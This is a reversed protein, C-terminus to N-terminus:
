CFDLQNDRDGPSLAQLLRGRESETLDTEWDLRLDCNRSIANLGSVSGSILYVRDPQLPIPHGACTNRSSKSTADLSNESAPLLNLQVLLQSRRLGVSMLPSRRIVRQVHLSYFNQFQGNTSHGSLSPSTETLNTSAQVKTLVVFKSSCDMLQSSQGCGVEDGPCFRKLPINQFRAKVAIENFRRAVPSLEPAAPQDAVKVTSIAPKSNNSFEISDIFDSPRDSSEPPMEDMEESAMTRHEVFEGDLPDPRNNNPEESPRLTSNFRRFFDILSEDETSNPQFSNLGHNPTEGFGEEDSSEDGIHENSNLGDLATFSTSSITSPFRGDLSNSGDQFRRGNASSLEVASGLTLQPELPTQLYWILSTLCVGLAILLLLLLAGLFCVSRQNYVIKIDSTSSPKSQMPKSTKSWQSLLSNSNGSNLFAPISTPPWSITFPTDSNTKNQM